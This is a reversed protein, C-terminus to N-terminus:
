PPPQSPEWPGGYADLTNQELAVCLDGLDEGRVAAMARVTLPLLYSANPRGRFPTPTLFPADTEVLLRDRPVAALAERLAAANKFTVTGAFSLWAGRDLCARAFDADGSFCHMVVRDPAGDGDLVKVVDAHADRDHIVLARDLRKALDIHWRFSAHQAERGDEGTRYYDLGTEGVARVRPHGALREIESWGEELRGAAALRPAENPHLAVGAVVSAQSEATRVAWGAGPLDCGIQVIRTVGVAAARALAEPVPLPGDAVSMDLHCHNDAVPGPLPDPAPPRTM